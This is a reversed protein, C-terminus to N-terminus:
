TLYDKFIKQKILSDKKTKMTHFFLFSANHATFRVRICWLLFISCITFNFPSLLLHASQVRLGYVLVCFM